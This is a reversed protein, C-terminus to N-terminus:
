QVEDFRKDYLNDLGKTRKKEGSWGNTNSGAGTENCTKGNTSSIFFSDVVIARQATFHFVDMERVAAM